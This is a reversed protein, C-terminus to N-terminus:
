AIVNMGFALAVKSVKIGIKDLGIIGLTKGKLEFGLTTQWYGQYMNESEERINRVLGL